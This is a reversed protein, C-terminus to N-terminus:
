QLKIFSSKHSQFECYYKFGVQKLLEFGEKFHGAVDQPRHADSGLTIIEGGCEKYLKLIGLDPFTTGIGQRLGSTNLEIGKGSEIVIKFLYRLKDYFRSYDVMYGYKMMYRNTYGLHALIDYYGLHATEIYEDIYQDALEYCHEISKFEIMYFDTYNRISHISGIVLDLNPTEYSTKAREPDQNIGGLEIGIRAKVNGQFNNKLKDYELLARSWDKYCDPDPMDAKNSYILDCHDTFCVADLGAAEAAAAMSSMPANSDISTDTHMHQDIYRM